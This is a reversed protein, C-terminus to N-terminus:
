PANKTFKDYYIHEPPIGKGALVALCADIMGPPGCLYADAAQGPPLQRDLVETILGTEGSWNDEPLPTSLAPIFKFDALESELRRMTEVLFLDRRSRAGFYYRTARRIGRDRMDELMSKMPAMGSGGAVLLIDRDADRLFFDGHPGHFRVQDHEKLHQFVYTTGLGHPMFRIELEIKAPRSPPSAISYARFVSSQIQEYRPIQLQIYQGAKFILPPASPALTLELERIDPTLDRIASVEAQYAKATWYSEPITVATDRGLPIQCALRLGNQREEASLHRLERATLEPPAGRAVRVKCLGCAGHGGCASPIFVGQDNLATLLTTGAAVRGPQRDNIALEYETKNPAPEM